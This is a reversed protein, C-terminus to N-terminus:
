RAWRPRGGSLWVTGRSARRRDENGANGDEDADYRFTLRSWAAEYHRRFSSARMEYADNLRTALDEFVLALSLYLHAERLATPSMVLYPRQGESIVRHQLEIWAEDRYSQYTSVSTLSTSSSPDLGSARAFLDADTIVPWLKTRVVAAENKFVHVSGSITASWEVRWDDGLSEATTTAAAITSTSTSGPTVSIASVLASGDPRFVSLTLATPTVAAGDLEVRLDLASDVGRVILDPLLFRATYFAM